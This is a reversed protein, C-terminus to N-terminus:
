FKEPYQKVVAGSIADAIKGIQTNAEHEKTYSGAYDKAGYTDVASKLLGVHDAILQHVADRPLNPNAGSFFDSIADEYGGLDQVAKDMGAKDGGKAAVTYNVFFKIHSRWIELFKAEAEPGYVSGVAKSIEVSNADLAKASADFDSRGDFGNRTAQSALDVHERELANLAVRLDASKTATNPKTSQMTTESPNNMTVAKAVGFGVGLGLVATVIAVSVTAAGRNPEIM